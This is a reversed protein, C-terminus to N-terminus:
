NMPKSKLKPHFIFIYFVLKIKKFGNTQPAPIQTIQQQSIAYGGAPTAPQYSLCKTGAENVKARVCVCVSGSETEGQECESM